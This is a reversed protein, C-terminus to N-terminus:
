RLAYLTHRDEQSVSDFETINLEILGISRSVGYVDATPEYRQFLMLGEILSSIAAM